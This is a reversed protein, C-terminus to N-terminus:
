RAVGERTLFAQLFARDETRITFTRSWSESSSKSGDLADPGGDWGTLTLHIGGGGPRDFDLELTLTLGYEYVLRRKGSPQRIANLLRDAPWLFEQGDLTLSAIGDEVILSFRTGISFSKTTPM